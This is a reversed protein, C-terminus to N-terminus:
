PICRSGSRKSKYVSQCKLVTLPMCVHAWVSTQSASKNTHIKILM